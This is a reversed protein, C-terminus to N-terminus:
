HKTAAVIDAASLKPADLEDASLKEILAQLTGALERLDDLTMPAEGRRFEAALLAVDPIPRAFLAALIDLFAAADGEGAAASAPESPPRHVAARQPPEAYVVHTVTRQPPPEQPVYAVHEVVHAESPVDSANPRVYQPESPVNRVHYGYLQAKVLREADVRRMDPHISGEGVAQNFREVSLKTLEFNTSYAPPLLLRVQATKLKKDGAIRMLKQATDITFPLEKECMATFTGHPLAAKAQLLEDGIAFFDDVTQRWRRTIKAVWHKASTAQGQREVRKVM